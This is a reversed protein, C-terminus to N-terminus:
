TQLRGDSFDPARGFQRWDTMDSYVVERDIAVTDPGAGWRTQRPYVKPGSPSQMGCSKPRRSPYGVWSRPLVFRLTFPWVGLSLPIIWDRPLPRSWFRVSGYMFGKCM